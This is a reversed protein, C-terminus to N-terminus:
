LNTETNMRITVCSLLFTLFIASELLYVYFLLYFEVSVERTSLVIGTYIVSYIIRYM